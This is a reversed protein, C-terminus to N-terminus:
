RKKEGNGGRANRAADVNRRLERAANQPDSQKTIASVVAVGDAGASVVASANGSQIGGIGVLPLQ